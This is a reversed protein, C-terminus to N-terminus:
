SFQTLRARAEQVDGEGILRVAEDDVLKVQEQYKDELENQVKVIEGIVRNYFLYKFHALRNFVWFAANDSYTLM